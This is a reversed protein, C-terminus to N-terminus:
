PNLDRTLRESCPRFKKGPILLANVTFGTVGRCPPFAEEVSFNKTASPWNGVVMPRIIMALPPPAVCATVKVRETDAKKTLTKGEVRASM